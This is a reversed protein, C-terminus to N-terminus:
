IRDIPEEAAQVSIKVSVNASSEGNSISAKLNLVDGPKSTSLDYILGPAGLNLYKFSGDASRYNLLQTGQILTASGSVIDTFKAKFKGFWDYTGGETPTIIGQTNNSFEVLAAGQFCQLRSISPSDNGRLTKFLKALLSQSQKESTKTGNLYGLDLLNSNLANSPNIEFLNDGNRFILSTNTGNASKTSDLPSFDYNLSCIENLNKSNVSGEPLNLTWADLLKYNPTNYQIKFLRPAPDTDCFSLVFIFAQSYPGTYTVAKPCFAGLISSNHDYIFDINDAVSQVFSYAHFALVQQYPAALIENRLFSLRSLGTSIPGVQFNQQRLGFLKDQFTQAAFNQGNYFTAISVQDTSM